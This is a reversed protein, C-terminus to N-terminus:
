WEYDLPGLEPSAAVAVEQFMGIDGSALYFRVTRM